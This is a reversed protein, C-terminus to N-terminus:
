MCEADFLDQANNYVADRCGKSNDMLYKMQNNTLKNHTQFSEYSTEYCTEYLSEHHLTSM